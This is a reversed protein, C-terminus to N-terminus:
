PMTPLYGKVACAETPLPAWPAKIRKIHLWMLTVNRGAPASMFTADRKWYPVHVMSAPQCLAPSGCYPCNIRYKKMKM